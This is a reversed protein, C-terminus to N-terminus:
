KVEPPNPEATPEAHATGPEKQPLAYGTEMLAEAVWDPVLEIDGQRHLINGTGPVYYNRVMRIRTFGERAPRQATKTKPQKSFEERTV